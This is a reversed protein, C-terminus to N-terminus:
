RLSEVAQLYGALLNDLASRQRLVLELLGNHRPERAITCASLVADGIEEEPIQLAIDLARYAGDSAASVPLGRAHNHTSPAAGVRQAYDDVHGVLAEDGDIAWVRVGAATPQTLVNRGHRAANHMWLDLVCMAGVEDANVVRDAFRGDWHAVDPVLASLWTRGKADFAADPMPAGVARGLQWCLAEAMLAEFGMDEERKAVWRRGDGSVAYVAANTHPVPVGGLRTIGDIEAIRPIM